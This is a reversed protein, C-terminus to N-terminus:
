GKTSAAASSNPEICTPFVTLTWTSSRACTQRLNLRSSNVLFESTNASSFSPILADARTSWLTATAPKATITFLFNSTSFRVIRVVGTADECTLHGVPFSTPPFSRAMEIILRAALEPERAVKSLTTM